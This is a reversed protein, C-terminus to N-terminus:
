EGESTEAAQKLKAEVKALTEDDAEATVGNGDSASRRRRSRLAAPPSEEGGPAEGKDEDVNAVEPESAGAAAKDVLETFEDETPVIIIDKFHVLKEADTEELPFEENLIKWASYRTNRGTGTRTFSVLPGKEPDLLNILEGTRDNRAIEIMDDFAMKPCSWIKFTEEGEKNCDVVFLVKRSSSNFKSALEENVGRYEARKAAAADYAGPEFTAPSALVQGGLFYQRVDIGYSNTHPDDELPPVLRVVNRGEAPVFPPLVGPKFFGTGGSGSVSDKAIEASSSRKFGAM